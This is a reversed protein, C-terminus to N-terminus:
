VTPRLTSQSPLWLTRSTKTPGAGSPSVFKLIEAGVCPQAIPHFSRLISFCPGGHSIVKYTKGSLEKTTQKKSVLLAHTRSKIGSSTAKVAQARLPSGEPLRASIFHFSFVSPHQFAPM